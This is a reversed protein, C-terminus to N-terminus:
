LPNRFLIWEVVRLASIRLFIMEWSELKQINPVTSDYSTVCNKNQETRINWIAKIFIPSMYM